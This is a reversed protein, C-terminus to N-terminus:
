FPYDILNTWKFIEHLVPGLVITKELIASALMKVWGFSDASNYDVKRRRLISHNHSARGPSPDM